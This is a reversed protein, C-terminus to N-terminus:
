SLGETIIEQVLERVEKSTEGGALEAELGRRVADDLDARSDSDWLEESTIEGDGHLQM